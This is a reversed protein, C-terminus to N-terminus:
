AVSPARMPSWLPSAWASARLRSWGKGQEGSCAKRCRSCQEQLEAQATEGVQLAEEGVEAVLSEKWTIRAPALNDEV